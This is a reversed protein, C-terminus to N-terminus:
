APPAAGLRALEERLNRRAPPDWRRHGSATTFLRPRAALETLVAVRGRQFADDGLHAYESRVGEAYSRYRVPSSGLVALDADCLLAGAHDGPDPAHGATLLVLRVVQEVDAAPVGLRPLAGAALDASRQENDLRTPDYVADHWYAACIVPGPLASSPSLTRLAQLVEALHRLDHYSRHPERYRMLLEQGAQVAEPGPGLVELWPELVAEV